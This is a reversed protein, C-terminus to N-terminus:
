FRQKSKMIIYTSYWHFILPELFQDYTQFLAYVSKQIFNQFTDLAEYNIGILLLAAM